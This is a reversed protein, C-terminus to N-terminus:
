KISCRGTQVQVDRIYTVIHFLGDCIWLVLTLVKKESIWVKVKHLLEAM